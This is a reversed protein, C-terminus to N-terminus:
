IRIGGVKVEDIFAADDTASGNIKFRLKFTSKNNMTSPLTFTYPNLQNNENTSNNAITTLTIWATGNYYLAQVNESSTDLSNAGMRFSVTINQYNTLSIAKEISATTTLKVAHTGVKPAGTYWTVAGAKTWNLASEFTDQFITQPAKPTTITTITSYASNNGAGDYARVRFRYTTSATLATNNYQPATTTAIQVFTTCTAGTCREVKYGAVGSTAQGATAPDTSTAWTLNIQTSSVAIATLNTPTSPPTTDAPTIAIANIEPANVVKTFTLNLTGDTVSKTFTKILAANKGAQAFIDFNTLITNGELSVNFTRQGTATVSPSTEAFHLTVQYTGNQLPINYGTMGYRETQYLRDDLTNNIAITGRNVATGGEFYQDAQWVKSATDTFPTTAGTEIRYTTPLTTTTKLTTTSVKNSSSSVNGALDVARVQYWYTTSATLGTNTFTTTSATTTALLTTTATSSLARLIHYAAIGSPVQGATAPDTSTAWM